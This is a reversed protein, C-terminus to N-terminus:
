QFISMVVDGADDHEMPEDIWAAAFDIHVCFWKQKCDVFAFYPLPKAIPKVRRAVISGLVSRDLM